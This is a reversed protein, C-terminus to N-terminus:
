PNCSPIPHGPRRRSNCPWPIENTPGQVQVTMPAGTKYFGITAQMPVPALNSDFRINYLTAWRVANANPNQAFADTAWSTSSASETLTWPTSNYGLNGPTGDFTWGPHQPPAHFGVNNKTISSGLPLTFSSIARDLNLNYIAYEYHWVGASPQTVKYAIYAIGDVGPAPEIRTITAGTWAYIAPLMRVTQNTGWSFGFPSSTGSVNVKRYSANNYTNNGSGATCVGPNATCWNYEHMTVYQAEGYYTAGPNLSTNLDSVETVIRHAPGPHSHGGHNNVQSTTAGGYSGSYPNVWARSGLGPGANLGAGYPDSCGSGLHQGGVGNCGLSCINGTLATFAHKMQSQGIQEFRQDNTAGGSMRYLNQPIVPHDLSGSGLSFWNLDVVGYNCSDTGIAIGVQTGSQSGFQDIDILNGVVVDPGPNTGNEGVPPMVNSKVEDNVLQTIETARMNASLVLDGVVLGADAPRGLAAAFETSLALRADRISFMRVTADYDIEAGRLVFFAFGTKGDRVTLEHESRPTSDLVLQRYSAQLKAPLGPAENQPTLDMASPLPGRLENNFVLITFFSDPVAAFQLSSHGQGNLKALDLNVSVNGNAVIMKELTGTAGQPGAVTGQELYSLGIGVATCFALVALFVRFRGGPLKKNM